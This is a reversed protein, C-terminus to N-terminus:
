RNYFLTYNIRIATSTASGLSAYVRKTSNNVLLGTVHTNNAIYDGNGVAGSIRTFDISTLGFMSKLNDESFMLVYNTNTPTVVISGSKVLPLNNLTTKDSASMLGKASQTAEDLDSMNVVVEDSVGFALGKGLDIKSRYEQGSTVDYSVGKIGTHTEIWKDYYASSGDFSIIRHYRRGDGTNTLEQIVNPVQEIVKLYFAGSEFPLNLCTSNGYYEGESIISNLDTNDTLQISKTLLTNKEVWNTGNWIYNGGASVSYLDGIEATEPLDEFTAVTDKYTINVINLDDVAKQIKLDTTTTDYYETAQKFGDLKSKDSASMLGATSTTAEAFDIDATGDFSVGNIKRATALKTATASNGSYNSGDTSINYGGNSGLRIPQYVGYQLYLEGTNGNGDSGVIGRTIIPNSSATGYAVFKNSRISKWRNTTGGLVYKDNTAPSINRYVGDDIGRSMYTNRVGKSGYNILGIQSIRTDLSNFNTLVIRMKNRGYSYVTKDENYIRYSTNIQYAGLSSNTRSGYLEYIGTLHNFVYYYIDKARWGANGFDIYFMNSETLQSPFAIDIVLVDTKATLASKLWVYSPSGDFANTLDISTATKNTLTEPTYDTDTTKYIEYSGGRTVLFALDNYLFPMTVGNNEPHTNLYIRSKTYGVSILSPDISTIGYGTATTSKKAYNTSIYSKIKSWFHTLGTKDLFNM